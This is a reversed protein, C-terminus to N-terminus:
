QVANKDTHPASKAKAMRLKAGRMHDQLLQDAFAILEEPTRDLEGRLWSEMMGAPAIVYFHTMLDMDEPTVGADIAGLEAGIQEVTRHIIAHFTIKDIPKQAMLEKLAEALAHKTQDSVAYTKTILSQRM